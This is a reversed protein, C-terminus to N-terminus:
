RAVAGKALAHLMREDNAARIRGILLDAVAVILATGLLTIWWIWGGDWKLGAWTLAVWLVASSVFGVAPILVSGHTHRNPLLYRGALGIIAGGLVVFLLEM